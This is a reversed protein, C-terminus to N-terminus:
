FNGIFCNEGSWGKSCECHGNPHCIGHQECGPLCVSEDRKFDTLLIEDRISCNLGLWGNLCKCVGMDCIGGNLCTTSCKLSNSLDNEKLKLFVLNTSNNLFSQISNIEFECSDGFWGNECFCRGKLCVGHKSCKKIDLCELQECFEGSWGTECLCKGDSKCRGNGNCDPKLCSKASMECELGKFGEHCICGGNSFIGNGSCM